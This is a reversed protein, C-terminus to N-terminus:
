IESRKVSDPEYPEHITHANLRDIPIRDAIYKLRPARFSLYILIEAFETKLRIQHDQSFM